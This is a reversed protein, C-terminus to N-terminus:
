KSWLLKEEKRNKEFDVWDTITMKAGSCDYIAEGCSGLSSAPNTFYFVSKGNYSYSYVRAGAYLQCIKGGTLEGLWKLDKVPDSVSYNFASDNKDCAIFTIFLILIFVIISKMVVSLYM